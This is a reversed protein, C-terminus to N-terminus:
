HKPILHSTTIGYSVRLYYEEGTVLNRVQVYKRPRIVIDTILLEENLRDNVGYELSTAYIEGARLNTSRKILAKPIGNSVEYISNVYYEDEAPKMNKDVLEYYQKRYKKEIIEVTSGARWVISGDEAAVQVIEAAVSKDKILEPEVNAQAAQWVLFSFLVLVSRILM